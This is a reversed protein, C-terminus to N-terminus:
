DLEEDKLMHLHIDKVMTHLTSFMASTIYRLAEGVAHSRGLAAQAESRGGTKWRLLVRDNGGNCRQQFQLIYGEESSGIVEFM